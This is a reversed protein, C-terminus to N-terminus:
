ASTLRGPTSSVAGTAFSSWSEPSRQIRTEGPNLRAVLPAHRPLVGLEGEAGPVIVMRAEDSYAPGEPTVLEVRLVAAHDESTSM